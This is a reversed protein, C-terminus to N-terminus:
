PNRREYDELPCNNPIKPADYNKIKSHSQAILFPNKETKDGYDKEYNCILVFSTNGNMEQYEKSFECDSCTEIVKMIKEGM